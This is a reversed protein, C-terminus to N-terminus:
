WEGSNDRTIFLFGGAGLMVIAFGALAITATDGGLATGGAVAGGGPSVYELKDYEFSEAGLGNIQIRYQDYATANVNQFSYAVDNTGDDPDLESLAGSTVQTENGDSDIGFVQAQLTGNAELATVRLEETDNDVDFTHESIAETQAAAFGVAGISAVLLVLALLAPAASTLKRLM